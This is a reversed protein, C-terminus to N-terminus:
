DKVTMISIDEGDIKLQFAEATQFDNIYEFKLIYGFEQKDYTLM